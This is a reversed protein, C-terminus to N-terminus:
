FLFKQSEESECQHRETSREKADVICCQDCFRRKGKEKEERERETWCDTERHMGEKSETELAFDGILFTCFLPNLCQPFVSQSTNENTTKSFDSISHNQDNILTADDDVSAIKDFEKPEKGTSHTSDALYGFEQDEHPTRKVQAKKLDPFNPLIAHVSVDTLDDLDPFTKFHRDLFLLLLSPHFMLLSFTLHCLSSSMRVASVRSDHMHTVRVLIHSIYACHTYVLFIHTCCTLTHGSVTACVTTAVVHTRVGTLVVGSSLFESFFFFEDSWSWNLSCRRVEKINKKIERM